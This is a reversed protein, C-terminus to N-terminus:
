GSAFIVKRVGDLLLACGLKKKKKKRLKIIIKKKKKNLAPGAVVNYARQGGKKEGKRAIRRAGRRTM